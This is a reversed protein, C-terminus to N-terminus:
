AAMELVANMRKRADSRFINAFDVILAQDDESLRDFSVNHQFAEVIIRGVESGDSLVYERDENSLQEQSKELMQLFGEAANAFREIDRQRSILSEVAQEQIPVRTELDALEIAESEDLQDQVRQAIQLRKFSVIDKALSAVKEGVEGELSEAEKEWIAILEEYVFSQLTKGYAEKLITDLREAAKTNLEPDAKVLDSAVRVLFWDDETLVDISGGEILKSEATGLLKQTARLRLYHEYDSPEGAMANKVDTKAIGFDNIASALDLKRRDGVSLGEADKSSARLKIRVKIAAEYEEATLWAIKGERIQQQLDRAKKVLDTVVDELTNAVESNELTLLAELGTAVGHAVLELYPGVQPIKGAKPALERLKAPAKQVIPKVRKWVKKVEGVVAEAKDAMFHIAKSAVTKAARVAREVNESVFATASSVIDSFWGM